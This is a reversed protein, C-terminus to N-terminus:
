YSFDAEFRWGGETQLAITYTVRQSPHGHRKFLDYLDLVATYIEVSPEVVDRYGEPSKVM